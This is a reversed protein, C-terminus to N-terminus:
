RLLVHMTYATFARVRQSAKNWHQISLADPHQHAEPLQQLWTRFGCMPRTGIWILASALPVMIGVVIGIMNGTVGTSQVVATLIVSFLLVTACGLTYLAVMCIASADGYYTDGVAFLAGGCGAM